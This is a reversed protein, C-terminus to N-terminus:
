EWSNVDKDEGDGGPQGDRGFSYLDYDGHTGPNQYVYPRGWPDVPVANKKLYPGEWKEEGPNTVLAALGQETSPYVGADLRYQDLAQGLLEIQAKAASIKGKGLKPFLRPAVLAALLGIIVMVVLLEVLTFGKVNSLMKKKADM